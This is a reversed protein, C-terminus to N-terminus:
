LYTQIFDWEMKDHLWLLNSYGEISLAFDWEELQQYLDLRPWWLRHIKGDKTLAALM